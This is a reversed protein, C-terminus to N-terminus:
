SQRDTIAYSRLKEIHRKEEAIIQKLTELTDHDKIFPVLMEYFLIGDNEFEIFIEFLDNLQHVKSFDVEKLSFSQEGILNQLSQSDMEESFVDKSKLTVATKLDSFWQAHEAEENAMWELAAALKPNTMKPVANRYVSEGNNEIKIAIDLVEGSTFM